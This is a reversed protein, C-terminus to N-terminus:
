NSPRSPDVKREIRSLYSELRDFRREFQEMQIKNAVAQGKIREDLVQVMMFSQERSAAVSAEVASVRGDLASAWVFVAGILGLASLIVAVVPVLRGNTEVPQRSTM